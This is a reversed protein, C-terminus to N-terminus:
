SAEDFDQTERPDNEKARAAAEDHAARDKATDKSNLKDAAKSAKGSEVFATKERTYREASQYDGEGQISGAKAKHKSM